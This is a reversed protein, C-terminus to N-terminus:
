KFSATVLKYTLNNEEIQVPIHYSKNQSELRGQMSFSTKSNEKADSDYASYYLIISGGIPADSKELNVTYTDVKATGSGFDTTTYDINAELKSTTNTSVYFSEATASTPDVVSITASYGTGLEYSRILNYLSATDIASTAKFKSWKGGNYSYHCNKGEFYSAYKYSVGNYNVEKYSALSSTGDTIAESMMIVNGSLDKATMTILAGKRTSSTIKFPEERVNDLKHDGMALTEVSYTMTGIKINNQENDFIDYVFLEEAGWAIGPVSQSSNCGAFAFVSITVM